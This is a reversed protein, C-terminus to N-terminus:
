LEIKIANKRLIFTARFEFKFPFKALTEEDDKLLFVAKKDNIYELEFIKNRAFGHRAINYEKGNLIYKNDKSAGCLPFLIPASGSWIQPDGHWMYEYGDKVVSKIEAGFKSIKVTLIDNKLTIM